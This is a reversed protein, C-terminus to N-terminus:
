EYYPEQGGGPYIEGDDGQVKGKLRKAMSVMKEIMPEDPNKTYINGGFWDFWPDPYTSKGSWLAFYPGNVVALSLEEDEEVIRLWEDASIEFGENQSWDRAKTIHLDYGM